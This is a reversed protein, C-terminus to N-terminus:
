AAKVPIKRSAPTAKPNKPLAITLVGKAFKADVKSTDVDSPLAFSRSFAGYSRECFYHQKDKEEKAARKEGKLTLVDEAISIDIDKEDIGPVDATITYSKDDEAVDVAVSLTEGNTKPWFHEIGPLTGFSPLDFGSFRDFLRDMENRMSQWVDTTHLPAPPAAPKSTQIQTNAM